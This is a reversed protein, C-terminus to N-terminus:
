IIFNLYIGRVGFAGQARVKYIRYGKKLGYSRFIWIDENPTNEKVHFLLIDMKKLEGLKKIGQVSLRCGAVRFFIM